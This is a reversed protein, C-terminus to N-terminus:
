AALTTAFEGLTQLMFIPNGSGAIGDNPMKRRLLVRHTAQLFHLPLQINHTQRLVDPRALNWHHMAGIAPSFM